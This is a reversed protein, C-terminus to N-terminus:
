SQSQLLVLNGESMTQFIQSRADFYVLKLACHQRGIGMDRARRQKVYDSLKNVIERTSPDKQVIASLQGLGSEDHQLLAM